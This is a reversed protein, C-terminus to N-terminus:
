RRNRAPNALVEVAQKLGSDGLHEALRMLEDPSPAATHGGAKAIAHSAVLNAVRCAQRHSGGSMMVALFGGAFADGAGTSDVVAFEEIAPFHAVGSDDSLLCGDSGMTVVVARAGLSRLAQAASETSDMSSIASAEHANPFLYDIGDLWGAGPDFHEAFLPSPDFSTSIQRRRSEELLHFATARSGHDQFSYGSVHVTSARDLLPLYVNAPTRGCAVGRASVFTRQGTTDILAVVVATSGKAVELGRTGVQHRLLDDTVIQAFLDDGVRAVLEVATGLRAATAACNAASGGATVTPDTAAADMGATPLHRIRLSIDVSADGYVLLSPKVV